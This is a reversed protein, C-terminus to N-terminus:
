TAGAAQKRYDFWTDAFGAVAAVALLFNPPMVMFLYFGVLWLRGMERQKVLSHVVATGQFVYLVVGASVIGVALAGLTGELLIAALMAGVLVYSTARPLRLARFEIGFGGPNDLMAHWWRAIFLTLGVGIVFSALLAGSIAEAVLMMDPKPMQPQGAEVMSAATAAWQEELWPAMAEVPSGLVLVYLIWAIVGLVGVGALAPGQGNFHRLILAAALAPLWNVLGFALAQTVGGPWFLGVACSAVMAGLAVSVGELPGFRLGALAVVAGSAYVSIGALLIPLGSSPPNNPGPALAMGLAFMAAAIAAAHVRGRMAFEVFARM